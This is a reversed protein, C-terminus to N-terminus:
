IPHTVEDIECQGFEQYRVSEGIGINENDMGMHKM